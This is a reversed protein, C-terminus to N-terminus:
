RTFVAVIAAVTGAFLCLTAMNVFGAKAKALLAQQRVREDELAMMSLPSSDNM